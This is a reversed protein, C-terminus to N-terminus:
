LPASARFGPVDRRWHGAFKGTQQQRRSRDKALVRLLSSLKSSM